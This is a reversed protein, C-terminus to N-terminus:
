GQSLRLDSVQMKNKKNKKIIIIKGGGGGGDLKRVTNMDLAVKM